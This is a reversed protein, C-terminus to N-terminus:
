WIDYSVELWGIVRSYNKLNAVITSTAESDRNYYTSGVNVGLDRTLSYYFSATTTIILDNRGHHIADLELPLATNYYRDDVQVNVRARARSKNIRFSYACSVEYTDEEYSGDGNENDETDQFEPPIRDLDDFGLNDYTGFAYSMAVRWHGKRLVAEAGVGLRDGDFETFYENYAYRKFEGFVAYEILKTPRYFVKAMSKSMAFDAHHREGTHDDNYDRLFYYPEYFYNLYLHWARSVDQNASFSAWGFTNISNIAYHAFDGTASLKTEAKKFVKIKYSASLKLDSRMDDLTKVPSIYYETGDKARDYDRSSYRLINNDYTFKLSTSM